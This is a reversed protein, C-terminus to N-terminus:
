KQVVTKYNSTIEEAIKILFKYCYHEYITKIFIKSTMNLCPRLHMYIHNPINKILNLSLLTSIHNLHIM